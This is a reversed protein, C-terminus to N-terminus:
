VAWSSYSKNREVKKFKFMFRGKKYILEDTDKNFKEFDAKTLYINMYNEEDDELDELDESDAVDKNKAKRLKQKAKWEEKTLETYSGYIQIRSQKLPNGNIEREEDDVFFLETATETLFVRYSYNTYADFLDPRVNIVNLIQDIEDDPFRNREEVIAQLMDFSFASFLNSIGLIEDVVKRSYVKLNDTCYEEIFDASLGRFEINYYIRGPRNIMNEDIKHKNNCTLIFMKKTTTIGDFLSLMREQTEQDYVKEFEDFLVICDQKISELFSIFKDGHWPSTITIVPWGMENASCSLHKALLSKGSGKEGVLLIGTSSNRSLYTKMIRESLAKTDGYIREPLVFSDAPKLYIPGGFPMEAVQYVGAPVVDSLDSQNQQVPLVMQASVSFKFDTM